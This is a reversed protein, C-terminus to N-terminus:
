FKRGEYFQTTRWFCKYNSKPAVMVVKWGCKLLSNLERCNPESDPNLQGSFNVEYTRVCKQETM